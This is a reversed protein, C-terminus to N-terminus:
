DMFLVFHEDHLLYQIIPFEVNAASTSLGESFFGLCIQPNTNGLANGNLAIM